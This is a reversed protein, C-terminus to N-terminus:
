KQVDYIFSKLSVCQQVDHVNRKTAFYGGGGGEFFFLTLNHRLHLFSEFKSYCRLFRQM